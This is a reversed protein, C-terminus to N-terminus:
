SKCGQDLLWYVRLWLCSTSQEKKRNEFRVFVTWGEGKYKRAAHVVLSAYALLDQTRTPQQQVMVGIYSHFCEVWQLINAVRKGKSRKKDAGKSGSTEPPDLQGLKDPLLETMEVFDGRWIKQALKPPIAVGSPAITLTSMEAM